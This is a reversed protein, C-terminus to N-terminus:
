CLRVPHLCICAGNLKKRSLLAEGLLEGSGRRANGKYRAEESKAIKTIPNIFSSMKAVIHVEKDVAIKVADPAAQRAFYM